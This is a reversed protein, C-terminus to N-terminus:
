GLRRWLLERHLMGAASPRPPPTLVLLGDEWRALRVQEGGLWSPMTAGDVRTTLTDGTVTWAGCYSLHERALGDPLTARGDTLVALMRGEASFQVLGLPQPGYPGAVPEGADNRTRTAVLQWVGVLDIM